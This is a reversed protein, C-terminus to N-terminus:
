IPLHQARRKEAPVNIKGMPPGLIVSHYDKASYIYGDDNIVIKPVSGFIANWEKPTYIETM